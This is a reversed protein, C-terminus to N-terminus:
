AAGNPAHLRGITHEFSTAIKQEGTVNPDDGFGESAGENCTIDLWSCARDVDIPVKGWQSQVLSTDNMTKFADQVNATTTSGGYLTLLESNLSMVVPLTDIALTRDQGGALWDGLFPDYYSMGIIPVSPAAASLGALMKALNENVAALGLQVCTEVIGTPSSCGVLDNGGIDITILAIHHTHKHLFSLASQYQGNDLMTTTTEESVALNELRLGPVRSAYHAVLLYPYSNTGEWVPVSDGLALYFFKSVSPGVRAAAPAAVVNVFGLAVIAVSAVVGAWCRGSRGIMVEDGPGIRGGFFDTNENSLRVRWPGLSYDHQLRRGGAM